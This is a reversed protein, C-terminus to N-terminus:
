TLELSTIGTSGGGAERQENLKDLSGDALDHPFSPWHTSVDM